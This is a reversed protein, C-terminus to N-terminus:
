SFENDSGVVRASGSPQMGGGGTERIMIKPKPTRTELPRVTLQGERGAQRKAEESLAQLTLLVREGM